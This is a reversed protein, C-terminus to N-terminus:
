IAVAATAKEAIAYALLQTYLLVKEAFNEFPLLKVSSPDFTLFFNIEFNHYEDKFNILM